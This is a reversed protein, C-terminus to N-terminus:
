PCVHHSVKYLSLDNLMMELEKSVFKMLKFQTMKLYSIM